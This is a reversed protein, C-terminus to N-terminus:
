ILSVWKNIVNDELYYESRKVAKAQLAIRKDRDKCLSIVKDAFAATDYCDVCEGGDAIIEKPSVPCDFAVPIIGYQMAEIIVLGFGESDSTCMLIDGSAYHKSMNRVFGHFNVNQLKRDSVIRRIKEEEPGEGYIELSWDSVETLVKEWIELLRYCGKEVSLRGVFLIRKNSQSSMSAAYESKCIFNPIVKIANTNLCSNISVVENKGAQTLTVVNDMSELAMHCLHCHRSFVYSSIISSVFTKKHIINRISEEYGNISWHIVASTKVNSPNAPFLDYTFNIFLKPMRRNCFDELKKQLYKFRKKPFLFARIRNKSISKYENYIKTDLSVVYDLEGNYPKLTLICANVGIRRMGEVLRIAAIETGGLAEMSHIFVIVTAMDAIKHTM